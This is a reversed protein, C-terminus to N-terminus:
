SDICDLVVGSVMHSLYVFVLYCLVCTLWSMLGSRAPSWLDALFPRSLVVFVLIFCLYCFLDM